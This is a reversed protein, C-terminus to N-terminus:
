DWYQATPCFHVWCTAIYNGHMAWQSAQVLIQGGAGYTGHTTYNYQVTGSSGEMADFNRNYSVGASGGIILDQGGASHDCYGGFELTVSVMWHGTKPITYLLNMGQNSTNFTIQGSYWDDPSNLGNLIAATGANYGSNYRNDWVNPDNHAVTHQWYDRSALMNNYNTIWADREAVMNNYNTTMTALNAQSTNFESEWSLGNGWDRSRGYAQDARDNWLNRDATMGALSGGLYTV